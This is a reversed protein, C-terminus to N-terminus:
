VLLSVRYMIPPSTVVVILGRHAIKCLWRRLGPWQPLACRVAHHVTQWRISLTAPSACQDRSTKGAIAILSSSLLYFRVKDLLNLVADGKLAASDPVHIKWRGDYKALDEDVDDKRAESKVWVNEARKPEDFMEIFHHSARDVFPHQYDAPGIEDKDSEDEVTVGADEEDPLEDTRAGALLLFLGLLCIFRKM